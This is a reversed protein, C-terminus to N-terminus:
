AWCPRICCQLVRELMAALRAAFRRDLLKGGTLVGRLGAVRGSIMWCVLMHALVLILPCPQTSDAGARSAM